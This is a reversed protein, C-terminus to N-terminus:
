KLYYALSFQITQNYIKADEYVIPSSPDSTFHIKGIPSMGYYYHTIISWKSTLNFRFGGIGGADTSTLLNTNHGVNFGISPGAEISLWALPQYSILLPLELYSLKTTFDSNHSKGSKQIFQLEPIFNLKNSLKLKTFVGVHFSIASKLSYSYDFPVNRSAIKNSNIGAKFGLPIQAHNSFVVFLM